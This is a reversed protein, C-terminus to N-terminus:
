RERKTARWKRNGSIQSPPTDYVTVVRDKIRSVSLRSLRKDKEKRKEQWDKKSGEKRLAESSLHLTLGSLWKEVKEIRDCSRRLPDQLAFLDDAVEGAFYAGVGESLARARAM